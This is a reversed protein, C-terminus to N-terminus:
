PSCPSSCSRSAAPCSASTRPVSPSAARARQRSAAIAERLEPYGQTPGYHTWGEDLARRQGAEVIHAPTDFTPSASRSTFSAAERRKSRAPGCWYRSRPRSASHPGDTQSTENVQKESIPFATASKSAVARSRRDVVHEGSSAAPSASATTLHSSPSNTPCTASSRKPRALLGRNGHLRSRKVGGGSNDRRLLSGLRGSETGSGIHQAEGASRGGRRSDTLSCRLDARRWHRRRSPREGETRRQHQRATRRELCTDGALSYFGGQGKEVFGLDEIAIIEAITFCDHVEAFQIDAPTSVPWRIPKRRRRNERRPFPSTTKRISPWTIPPRPSALVRVPKDTFEHARELPALIVSAAGDSVLSCDYVTLPDAVPKGALAQEMTIVKKMHADPNKAGNAHNKVAVAAMHERTTGYQYMHRHAIMAFLAPFTAGAKGEGSCDGAM